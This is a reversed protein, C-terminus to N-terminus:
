APATNGVVLDVVQAAARRALQGAKGSRLDPVPERGRGPTIQAPDDRHVLSLLQRGRDDPGEHGVDQHGLIMARGTQQELDDRLGAAPDAGASETPSRIM